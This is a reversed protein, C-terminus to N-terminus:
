NPADKVKTSTTTADGQYFFPVDTVWVLDDVVSSRNGNINKMINGVKAQLDAISTDVCNGAKPRKVPKQKSDHDLPQEQKKDNGNTASSEAEM